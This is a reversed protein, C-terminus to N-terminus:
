MPARGDGARRGGAAKIRRALVPATGETGIAVTVPDRDVIAPTLFESEELNDVINTLAGAWRGLEVARRDLERDGNAGYVLRANSVDDWDIAREALTIRGEGAWQRLAPSPNEGYVAIRAPTKLLLRIKAEAASGAGSFVVDRDKLDLFVPYYRM